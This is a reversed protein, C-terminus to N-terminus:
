FVDEQEKLAETIHIRKGNKISVIFADNCVSLVITKFSVAEEYTSFKGLRYKFLNNEETISINTTNEITINKNRYAGVQITFFLNSTSTLYNDPLSTAIVELYNENKQALVNNIGLFVLVIFLSIFIKM